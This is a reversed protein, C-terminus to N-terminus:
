LNLVDILLNSSIEHSGEFTLCSHKIGFDNLLKIQENRASEPFVPDQKGYVLIIDSKTFFNSESFNIDHALNGCWFITKHFEPARMACWRSLTAAGQSFGVANINLSYKKANPLIIENYLKDLYNVYDKIDNLRDEKTMWTAGVDGNLYQRMLAEPAFIYRGQDAFDAFMSIFKRALQKHGHLFVWIDKTEETLEGMTYYRATRSVTLFNENINM